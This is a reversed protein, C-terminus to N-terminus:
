CLNPNVTIEAPSLEWLQHTKNIIPKIVLIQVHQAATVIVKYHFFLFVAQLEKQQYSRKREFLSMQFVFTM